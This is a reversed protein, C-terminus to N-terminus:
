DLLHTDRTMGAMRSLITQFEVEDIDVHEVVRGYLLITPV